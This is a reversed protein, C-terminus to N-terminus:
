EFEIINSKEYDNDAFTVVQQGEALGSIIESQAAGQRKIKVPTKVARRTQKDFVYVLAQGEQFFIAESPALLADLSTGLSVRLDISQGRKLAIQRPQSMLLKAKFKGNDVVSSVTEITLPIAIGGAEAMVNVQPKIKDLYYESFAAEFYYSHLNDIVTVKEGPNIQQGIKIDLATLTGEIPSIITLQELGGKILDVLKGLRKISEDIERYQHPLIIAQQANHESLIECTKKWYAVEDQLNEYKAKEVISKEYLKKNRQLEKKTKLFNYGSKELELKTDRSNRELLMRMNRLNNIQETADAIRSTVQLVFDYNSLRAIVEGKKIFGSSSKYIEVVKGGRESSVVVSENPIAIARTVLTDNYSGRKISHFTAGSLPVRLFNDATALRYLLGCLVILIVLATWALWKARLHIFPRKELKVDM